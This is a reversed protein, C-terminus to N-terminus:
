AAAEDILKRICALLDQRSFPKLLVSIKALDPYSSLENSLDDLGSTLILKSATKRDVLEQALKIGSDMGLLVDILIVRFNRSLALPLGEQYTHCIEITECEDELMMATATCVGVSDDIILVSPLDRTM